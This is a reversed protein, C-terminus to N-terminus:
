REGKVVCIRSYSVTKNWYWCALQTFRVVLGGKNSHLQERLERDKYKDSEAAYQISILDFASQMIRDVKEGRGIM